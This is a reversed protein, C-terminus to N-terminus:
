TKKGAFLEKLGQPAEADQRSADDFHARAFDAEMSEVLEKLKELTADSWTPQGHALGHTAGEKTFAAQGTLEKMFVKYNLTILALGNFKPTGHIV